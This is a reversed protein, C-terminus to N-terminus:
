GHSVEFLNLQIAGAPEPQPEPEGDTRWLGLPLCVQLGCGYDFTKGKRRILDLTAWYARKQEQEWLRLVKAGCAEARNLDAVDCAWGCFPKHRLHESERVTKHWVEGHIHGHAPRQVPAAATTSHPQAPQGGREAGYRGGAAGGLARAARKKEPM